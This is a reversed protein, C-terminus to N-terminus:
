CYGVGALFERGGGVLTQCFKIGIKCLSLTQQHLFVSRCAVLWPWNNAKSKTSSFLMSENEHPHIRLTTYLTEDAVLINPLTKQVSNDCESISKENYSQKPTGSDVVPFYLRNCDGEYKKVYEIKAEETALVWSTNAPNAKNGKPTGKPPM